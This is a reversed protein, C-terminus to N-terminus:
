QNTVKHEDCEASLTLLDDRLAKRIRRDRIKKRVFPVIVFAVIAVALVWITGEWDIWNIINMM